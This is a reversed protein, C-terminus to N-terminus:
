PLKRPATFGQNSPSVFRQTATYNIGGSLAGGAVGNLDADSLGAPEAPTAPSRKVSADDAAQDGKKGQEETM